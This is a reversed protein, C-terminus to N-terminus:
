ETSTLVVEVRRNLTRGEETLNTARPALYGVGEARVQEGQVGHERALWDRVSAARRRSLAINDELPGRADTHGVLAVRYGPNANLYGALERLSGLEVNQLDASGTAFRLDDLVAFGNQELAQALANGSVPPVPEPESAPAPEPSNIPATPEATHSDAPSVHLVQVFGTQLSRSVVVSVAEAEGGEGRTASLFRYDGLDVHMEPESAIRTAFRFDFGGCVRDACEFRIRFGQASLQDRLPALIQLTTWGIGPLKLVTQSVQGEATLTEIRGDRWPGVPMDYSGPSETHEASTVAMAPLELPM